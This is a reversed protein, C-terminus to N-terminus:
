AALERKARKLAMLDDMDGTENFRKQLRDVKASNNSASKRSPKTVKKAPKPARKPKEALKAQANDWQMAKYAM